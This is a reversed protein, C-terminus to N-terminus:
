GHFHINTYNMGWYGYVPNNANGVASFRNYIVTVNADNTVANNPDMVYQLLERELSTAPSLNNNLTVSLTDGPKVRLTPGVSAGNYGPGIRAGNLSEIYDVDLTVELLGDVSVLEVPQYNAASVLLVTTSQQSLLFFLLPGFYLKM